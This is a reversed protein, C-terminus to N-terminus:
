ARGETAGTWGSRRPNFCVRNLRSRLRIHTAGTWGSRRPNFRVRRKRLSDAIPANRRDVRVPSSQFQPPRRLQGGPSRNRRDVRVPSSQFEKTNLVGLVNEWTAGTWGSRRPNFRLRCAGTPRLPRQAPGGPGALISVVGYVTMVLIAGNRRDVRVPSSQFPQRSPVQERDLRQAPGGPGALISVLTARKRWDIMTM